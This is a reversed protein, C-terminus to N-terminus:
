FKYIEQLYTKVVLYTNAEINLNLKVKIRKYYTSVTKQDLDLQNAIDKIRDGKILFNMIEKERNSLKHKKM